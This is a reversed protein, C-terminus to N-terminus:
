SIGATRDDSYVSVNGDSGDTIGAMFSGAAPTIESAIQNFPNFSGATNTGQDAFWLKGDSAATIGWLRADEPIGTSFETVTPTAARAPAVGILIAEAACAIALAV